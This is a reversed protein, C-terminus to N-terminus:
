EEEEDIIVPLVVEVETGLDVTSMLHIGFYDGFMLKIRQNINLLAIGTNNKIIDEPDQRENKVLKQNIYDLIDPPIGIGNDLISIVIRNNTSYVSIKIEGKGIKKELGHLIANEVIPQITMNPLKYCLLQDNELAEKYIFKNNFRFQQIFIYNEVNEFEEQLSILKGEKSIMNRFLRSLAETMDAIEKVDHLMALGRISDLTNYLFHPNIKSQLASLEAERILIHAKHEREISARQEQLIDVLMTELMSKPEEYTIQMTSKDLKLKDFMNEIRIIPKLIIHRGLILVFFVYAIELYLLNINNFNNSFFLSILNVIIFPHFFNIILFIKIERSNNLSSKKIKLKDTVFSM